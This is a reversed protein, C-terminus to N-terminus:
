GHALWRWDGDASDGLQEHAAAVTVAIPGGCRVGVGRTEISEVAFPPIKWAAALKRADVLGEDTARAAGDAAESLIEALVLLDHLLGAVYAKDPDPDGKELAIQEASEAVLRSHQWLRLLESHLRPNRYSLALAPTTQGVMRLCHIGAELICQELASFGPELPVPALPLVRLTLGLDARIVACVGSLDVTPKGLLAELRLLSDPLAPVNGLLRSLEDQASDNFVPDTFHHFGRDVRSPYM